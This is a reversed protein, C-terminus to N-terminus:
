RHARRNAQVNRAKLAARQHARTGGGDHRRAKGKGRSKYGMLNDRATMLAAMGAGGTKATPNWTSAMAVAAALAHFRSFARGKM